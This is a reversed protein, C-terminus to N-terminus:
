NLNRDTKDLSIIYQLRIQKVDDILQVFLKDLQQLINNTNKNKRILSSTTKEFIKGRYDFGLDTFYDQTHTAYYRASKRNRLLM